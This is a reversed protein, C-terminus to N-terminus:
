DNAGGTLWFSDGEVVKGVVPIVSPDYEYTPVLTVFEVGLNSQIDYGTVKYYEQFPTVGIIIYVDKKIKENRPLILSNVKLDEFYLTADGGKSKLDDKLTSSGLGHMYTWSFQEIGGKDIWSIYHSMRLVIYKNYGRTHIQELYYIMWNIEKGDRDPITLITGNPIKIDIGTLLYQLTKTDDQKFRELTAAVPTGEYLFDVRYISKILYLSFNQEREGQIRSQYDEGYRNARKKYIDFYSM